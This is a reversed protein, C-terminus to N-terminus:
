KIVAQMPWYGSMRYQGDPEKILVLRLLYRGTSFDGQYTFNFIHGVFGTADDRTSYGSDILESKKPPGSYRMGAAINSLFITKNIREKFMASTQKDWLTNFDQANISDFIARSAAQAQAKEKPDPVAFGNNPQPNISPGVVNTDVPAPDITAEKQSEIVAGIALFAAVVSWVPRRKLQASLNLRSWWSVKMRGVADVVEAPINGESELVTVSRLYVPIEGISTKDILVPLVRNQPHAWKSKAFKLETLAFSGTAISNESVLFVLVDAMRVAAEINSQFNGAPPLSSKDFFVTHGAGSLALQVEEAVIRDESAYSLFINL